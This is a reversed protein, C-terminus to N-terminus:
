KQGYVKLIKDIIKTTSKGERLSIFELQGGYGEIIEKEPVYKSEWDDGKISIDPRLYNILNIPTKDEMLIVYDVCELESIMEIRDNQDIIPRSDGKNQKISDDSNIAVILVDGLSKAKKFSSVHGVHLLDFCGNTFVIQKGKEKLDDIIYKATEKSVLKFDGTNYINSLLENLSVTSAGFKSVVVSAASNAMQCIEGIDFALPLLIAFIAVVTDGAGTVDIVDKAFTPYDIKSGKSSEFLSIGKESRTLALYKLQISDCIEIGAKFISDESDLKDNSLIELEKTNPTIITASNYKSYDTGKPDVIIPIDNKNAYKIMIQAIDKSVSGKGYDSIVFSDIGSFVKELNSIIFSKYEEPVEKIKEEDLRLFQQNRSVIRTKVITKRDKYKKLFNTDVRADNLNNVFFNGDEDDGVCGIVRVKAGLAIINNVVNGAGGLRLLKNNVEVVPIPAEPSIRSVNGDIYKDVMYDGFVLITEEKIKSLMEVKM